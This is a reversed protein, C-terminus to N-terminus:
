MSPMLKEAKTWECVEPTAILSGVVISVTFLERAAMREMIRWMGM